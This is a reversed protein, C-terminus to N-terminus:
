VWGSFLAEMVGYALVVKYKLEDVSDMALGGASSHDVYLRPRMYIELRGVVAKNYGGISAATTTTTGAPAVAASWFEDPSLFIRTTIISFVSFRISMLIICLQRYLEEFQDTLKRVASSWTADRTSTLRVFRAMALLRNIKPLKLALTLDFLAFAVLIM